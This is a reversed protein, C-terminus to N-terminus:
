GSVHLVVPQSAGSVHGGEVAAAFVRYLGSHRIRLPLAFSSIGTAAPGAATAAVLVWRNKVFRQVSVRAGAQAPVIVGAFTRSARGDRGASARGVTMTVGVHVFETVTASVVPEGPGISVVRLQTTVSLSPLDFQFGGGPFTMGPSGVVQFPGTFPFPKAQLVVVSSTAGTGTLTGVVTLTAGLTVPNPLASIALSLPVSTTTFSADGGFVTGLANIAVLRYHYQTQPALGTVTTRVGLTKSGVAPTSPASESGYKTTPGYQFFYTTAQGGPDVAGTLDAAQYTIAAAAGTRAAPRAPSTASGATTGGHPPATGAGAVPAITLAACAVGLWALSRLRARARSRGGREHDGWSDM